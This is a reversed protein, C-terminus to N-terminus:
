RTWLARWRKRDIICSKTDM